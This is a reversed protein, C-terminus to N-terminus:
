ELDKLIDRTTEQITRFQIGLITSAKDSAFTVARFTEGGPNGKALTHYPPPSLSNAVDMFDQWVFPSSACTIIREGGAEPIELARVHAEAVDRVDVWGHGPSTLTSEGFVRGNVIVEFWFKNSANLEEARTVKHANPGFVWPPNLVTLDWTIQAKHEEYFKWVAKESLTKSAAYKVLGSADRGKEECERVTEENWDAESATVATPITSNLVNLTSMIAACSSTHIVRKLSSGYKLASHLLNLAGNVSPEIIDRPEIANLDVQTATHIIGHVGKVAEDWVGENQMDGVPFLQLQRGYTHYTDALQQGRSENRVAARVTYGKKLLLGVIWSAIYGNAGTVLITSINDTLAPM